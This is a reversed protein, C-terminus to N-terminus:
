VIEERNGKGILVGIGVWNWVELDKGIGSSGEGDWLRVVNGCNIWYDNM